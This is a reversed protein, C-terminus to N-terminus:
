LSDIESYDTEDYVPHHDESFLIKQFDNVNTKTLTYPVAEIEPKKTKISVVNQKNKEAHFNRAAENFAEMFYEKGEEWSIAEKEYRLKTEEATEPYIIGKKRAYMFGGREFTEWLVDAGNRSVNKKPPFIGCENAVISIDSIRPFYNSRQLVEDYLQDLQTTSFALGNLIRVMDAIAKAPPHLMNPYQNKLGDVFAKVNM